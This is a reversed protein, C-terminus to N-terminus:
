KWLSYHFSASTKWFPFLSFGTYMKLYWNVGPLPIKRVEIPRKKKGVNNTQLKVPQPPARSVPPRFCTLPFSSLFGDSPAKVPSREGARWLYIDRVCRWSFSGLRHKESSEVRRIKVDELASLHFSFILVEIWKEKLKKPTHKMFTVLIIACSCISSLFICINTKCM